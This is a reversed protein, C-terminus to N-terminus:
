ATRASVLQASERSLGGLRGALQRWPDPNIMDRTVSPPVISRLDRQYRPLDYWPVCFNLHHEFHLTINFPMLLRRGFFLTTRSRFFPDPEDRLSGGHELAGKVLNWATLVHIGLFAAIAVPAGLWRTALTLGLAWIVVFAIIVGKSSSSKGGARKTRFVTRELFLWGPIFVNRAVGVALTRGVECNFQQPDNTELPRVHHELHGQEWHKGYHTAFVTAVMWGPVRNIWTHLRRNGAILFMGHSAEHVVLIFISFYLLGFAFAALPVYVLPSVWTGLWATLLLGALLGLLCAGNIANHVLPRKNRYHYPQGARIADYIFAPHRAGHSM